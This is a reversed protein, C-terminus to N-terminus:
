IGFRKNFIGRRHPTRWSNYVSKIALIQGTEVDVLRAVIRLCRDQGDWGENIDGMLLIEASLLKGLKPGTKKDMIKASHLGLEQMVADIRERELMRFRHTQFFALHLEGDLSAMPHPPPGALFSQNIKHKLFPLIALCWRNGTKEIERIKYEVKIKERNSIGQSDEAQITVYNTGEKLGEVLYTFYFITRGGHLLKRLLPLLGTNEQSSLVPVDNIWVEKIENKSTVWGQIVVVPKYVVSPCDRIFIPPSKKLKHIVQKSLTLPWSHSNDCVEVDAYKDSTLLDVKHDLGQGNDHEWIPALIGETINGALDKGKFIPMSLFPIGIEFEQIKEGKRLPIRKGDIWLTDLGDSDFILCKVKM